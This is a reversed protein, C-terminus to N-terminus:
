AARQLNKKKQERIKKNAPQYVKTTKNQKKELKAPQLKKTKPSHGNLAVCYYQYDLENKVNACEHMPCIMIYQLDDIM